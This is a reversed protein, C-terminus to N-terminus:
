KKRSYTIRMAPVDKGDPGPAYMTFIRNGDKYQVVSKMRSVKGTADPGDMWGTATRTAPDWTSEGVGLGLSMSDTWSGIYKKKEPNWATAGHGEFPQGMMESKFDTILCLGGCGIRNTEIGKSQMPPQGPAVFVEVVADWQGEDEKFLQHEPGPKPMPPAAPPQVAHAFVARAAPAACALTLVAVVVRTRLTMSGEKLAGV